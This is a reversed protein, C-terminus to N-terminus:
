EMTCGGIFERLLSLPPIETFVSEDLAPMYNLIKRLRSAMHYGEMRPTIAQLLPAAYHGLVPLEYHLATNFMSDAMEQYPFIWREEGRRVSPWMKLTAEPRTGRFQYDRVIRRLLRVDTTRIRNHDDLNLCTLASVFVRHIEGEPIGACLDPNLGHIGEVIIIEDKALRFPVGKKERCGTHFNYRPLEVTEGALLATMQRQLLPLDLTTIAELDITGDPELPVRSRDLYYDDLSIRTAKRGLVQLHVGLRGAFTTKGSSSPGAVMVIHRNRAVIERAIDGIAQDHLAENVRIFGRLQKGEVMRCLDSANEVGLIRCWDASQRFVAMHKPRYVMPAQTGDPLMPLVAFGEDQLGLAFVSVTGTSPAMVGYFYDRIQRGKWPLGYLTMVPRSRYRLLELKDTLGQEEFCEKVQELSLEERTFSLDAATIARMEAELSRLMAEDPKMGPLRVYVGYGSSYEIRVRQGPWLAQVATLMVMRLTREYVRRGEEHTIDLPTLVAGDPVPEALSLVNFDNMAALVGEGCGAQRLTELVSTGEPLTMSKGSVTVHIM